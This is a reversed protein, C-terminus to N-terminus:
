QEQDNSLVKLYVKHTQSAIESWNYNKKVHERYTKSVTVPDLKQNLKKTLDNVNGTEFYDTENLRVLTNAEINSALIPLNFSMAELLALSLGEHYSPLVFLAAHSFIQKLKAGKIFGPTIINNQKAVEKLKKSFVTEHDADGAIVLYYNHKIESQIYASILDHFGKEEVFRGAALIYKKSTLGLTNIYDTDNSIDPVKVGNYIISIGKRNFKKELYKKILESVVIVSHAYKTGWKEGLKLVSKAIFGWKQRDYDPGQSTVVVKLGLFIAIPTVISPGVAHIHVIDPNKLRCIFLSILTHFIAELSKIKPTYIYKLKVGKYEKIRKSSPIYPTRCFITVDCGLKVLEPYLNECHTEIGGLVDPIGRTGIVCIKM